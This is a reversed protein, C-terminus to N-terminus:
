EALRASFPSAPLGASNYLVADPNDAHGYRVQTPAPVQPHSLRIQGNELAVEAWVFQGDAGAIAFAKGPKLVLGQESHSFSLLLSAGQQQLSQLVPGRYAINEGYVVARAALAMRSGLTRKDVPHIDNWEGTDIAVVM